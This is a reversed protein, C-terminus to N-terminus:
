GRDARSFVPSNGTAGASLLPRLLDALISLVPRSADISVGMPAYQVELPGVKESLVRDTLTVSPTLGNPNLLEYYSAESAAATVERPISMNDVAWGEPTAVNYRPWAQIQARQGIRYGQFQDEWGNTIYTSGRRIAPEMDATPDYSTLDYGKAECYAQFDSVSVLADGGTGDEVKLAM